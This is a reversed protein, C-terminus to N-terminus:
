EIQDQTPTIDIIDSATNIQAILRSRTDEDLVITFNNQESKKQNEGIGLLGSLKDVASLLVKPDQQQRSMVVAETVLAVLVGTDIQAASAIRTRTEAIFKAVRKRRALRSASVAINGRTMDSVDFCETYSEIMGSGAAVMQAFKIEEPPLYDTNDFLTHEPPLVADVFLGNLLVDGQELGHKVLFKEQDETFDVAEFLEDLDDRKDSM